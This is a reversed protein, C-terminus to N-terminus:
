SLGNKAKQSANFVVRLKELNDPKVVAHHPLYYSPNPVQQPPVLEMHGLEIYELMFAQYRAALQPNKQLRRESHRLCAAALDRSGVLNPRKAFPLRVVFRGNEDRFHTSSFHMECFDEDPTLPVKRPVEEIEWFTALQQSLSPEAVVHFSRVLKPSDKAPSPSVAGTLLWGFVSQQALPSGIPGRKIGDLILTSYVDAGLICDVRAPVAFQPDALTLGNIHPWHGQIVKEKPLCGTLENLVLTFFGMAFNQDSSSQLIGQAVTNCRAPAETGVGILKVNHLACMSNYAGNHHSCATVLRPLEFPPYDTMKTVKFDFRKLWKQKLEPKKFGQMDVFYEM